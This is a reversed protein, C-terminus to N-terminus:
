KRRICGLIFRKLLTLCRVPLAIVTPCHLLLFFKIKDSKSMAYNETDSLLEKKIGKLCQVSTKIPYNRSIRIYSLISKKIRKYCAKRCDDPMEVSNVFDDIASIALINDKFTQVRPKMATSEPNLRHVYFPFSILGVMQAYYFVKVPWDSDEFVVNERFFIEKGIIFERRYCSTWIDYFFSNDKLYEIGKLKQINDGFTVEKLTAKKNCEANDWKLSRLVDLNNNDLVLDFTSLVNTANWYDDSDLFIVYEGKAIKLGTNRAGGQRKNKEHRLLTIKPKVVEKYQLKIDNLTQQIDETSADDILILEYKDKPFNQLLLGGICDSLYRSSNYIPVIISFKM